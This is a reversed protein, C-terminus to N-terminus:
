LKHKLGLLKRLKQLRMYRKGKKYLEHPCISHKHDEDVFSKLTSRFWYAGPGSCLANPCYWMGRCEVKKSEFGCYYCKNM